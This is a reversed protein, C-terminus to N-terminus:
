EESLNSEGSGDAATVDQVVLEYPKPKSSSFAEANSAPAPFTFDSDTSSTDSNSSAVDVRAIPRFTSSLRSSTSLIMKLEAVQSSMSSIMRMNKEEQQHVSELWEKERFEEKLPHIKKDAVRNSRNLSDQLQYVRKETEALKKRLEESSGQAEIYKREYEDAKQKEEQLMVKLNKIEATLAEVNETDRLPSSSDKIAEVSENDQFPSSSEQQFSNSSEEVSPSENEASIELVQCDMIAYWNM